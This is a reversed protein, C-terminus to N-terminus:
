ASAEMKELLKTLDAILQRIEVPGGIIWEGCSHELYAVNFVRKYEGCNDMPHWHDPRIFEGDCDPYTPCPASFFLKDTSYM